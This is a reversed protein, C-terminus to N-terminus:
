IRDALGEIAQRPQGAMIAGFDVDRHLGVDM